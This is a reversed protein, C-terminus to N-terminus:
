SYKRMICPRYVARTHGGGLILGDDTVVSKAGKVGWSGGMGERHHDGEQQRHRLRLKVGWTLAIAHNKSKIIRKFLFHRNIVPELVSRPTLFHTVNSFSENIVHSTADLENAPTRM